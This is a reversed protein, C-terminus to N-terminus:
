QGTFIQGNLITTEVLSSGFAYPFYDISPIPKTIFINALKGPSISGLLHQLELAFAGNITAAIIAESPTMKMKACALSMVLPMNGSPASGPNYDTALAVPLGADIMKRAPPFHMDLFFAAGPLLTPITDSNLLCDIEDDGITELHDVSIAQCQVGVQVGGSNHLQNAHLKPKLGYKKGQELIALSEETTFFGEECFVDCYDALGEDAVMPIMENLVKDLYKPRSIETPIAHAGLFTTKITVPNTEKLRRAVRLMKLEDQTTLGYGSKIEIAGTGMAIVENLRLQASEFLQEESTNQLRKASNLIGGGKKAIEAYSFGQIRYVFEEERSGAFIIHTHSDVFSPFVFRGSADIVKEARHAVKQKMPGFSDVKGDKILLFADPIVPLKSMASGSVIRSPSEGALVLGKIHEVLLDM